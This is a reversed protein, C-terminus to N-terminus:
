LCIMCEAAVGVGDMAVAARRDAIGSQEFASSVDVGLM